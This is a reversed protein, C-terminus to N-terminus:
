GKKAYGLRTLADSIEQLVDPDEITAPMNWETADAISRM